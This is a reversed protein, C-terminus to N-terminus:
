DELGAAIKLAKSFSFDDLQDYENQTLWELSAEGDAIRLPWGLQQCIEQRVALSSENWLDITHTAM